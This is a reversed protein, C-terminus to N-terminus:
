GDTHREEVTDQDRTARGIVDDTVTSFVAQYELPLEADPVRRVPVLFIPEPGFGDASVPYTNQETPAQPGARFTLSFSSSWADSGTPTCGTLVMPLLRGDSLHLRFDRGVLDRFRALGLEAM